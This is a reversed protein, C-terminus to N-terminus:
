RRRATMETGVLRCLEILGMGYDEVLVYPVARAGIIQRLRDSAEMLAALNRRARALDAHATQETVNESHWSTEIACRVVDASVSLLLDGFAVLSGDALADIAQDFRRGLTDDASLMAFRSIM